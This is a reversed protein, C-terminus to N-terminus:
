MYYGQWEDHTGNNEKADPALADTAVKQADAVCDGMTDFEWRQIRQLAVRMREVKARLRDVETPPQPLPPRPCPGSFGHVKFMSESTLMPEGCIECKNNM